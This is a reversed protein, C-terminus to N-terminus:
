LKGSFFLNILVFFLGILFSVVVGIVAGRGVAKDKETNLVSIQKEIETIQSEHLERPLYTAQMNKLQEAEHNLKIFHKENEALNLELAKAKAEFMLDIERRIAEIDKEQTVVLRELKLQIELTSCPNHPKGSGTTKPEM